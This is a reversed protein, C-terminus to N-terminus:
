GAPLCRQLLPRLRLDGRLSALGPDVPLCFLNADAEDAARQLLALAAGRRGLATEALALQYPSLYRPPAWCAPMAALMAEAEDRRGAAALALVQGIAGVSLQPALAECRRYLALAEVADGRQLRVYGLLSLALPQPQLELLARLEAEASALEGGYLALLAAQARGGPELPDLRRAQALEARAEDFRRVMTMSFALQRHLYASGPAAALAARYLREARPWDLAHRHSLGARLALADAHRPQLALVRAAADDALLWGPRPPELTLGVLQSWARAVGFHAAALAPEAAAAQEFRQLALRLSAEDGRRLLAEARQVLEDASGVAPPGPAQTAQRPALLRAHPVYDGPVLEFRWGAPAAGAQPSAVAALRALRHRLRRLEVRVISDQAPDFCAPDRLLAEVGITSEKLEAARGQLTAEVLHRLLRRHATARAFLPSALVRELEARVQAGPLQHLPLVDPDAAPRAPLASPPAM